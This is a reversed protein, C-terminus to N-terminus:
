RVRNARYQRMYDRWPGPNLHRKVTDPHWRGRGSPTPIRRKNLSRAIATFGYGAAQMRVIEPVARVVPPPPPDFTVRFTGLHDELRGQVSEVGIWRLCVWPTTV